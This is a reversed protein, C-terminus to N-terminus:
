VAFLHVRPSNPTFLSSGWETVAINDGVAHIAYPVKVGDRATVFKNDVLRGAETLVQVQNNDLCLYVEGNQHYSVGWPSANTPYAWKVRGQTDMCLLARKDRDSVLIEGASTTSLFRPWSFLDEGSDTKHITKLILARTDIIDVAQKGVVCCSVVFKGDPLKAIGEYPKDTTVTDMLLLSEETGVFALQCQEPLTVVADTSDHAQCLCVPCNLTLQDPPANANRIYFRFVQGNHADTLVISDEIIAVGTLQWCTNTRDAPKVNFTVRARRPTLDSRATGPESRPTSAPLSLSRSTRASNLSLRPVERPTGLFIQSNTESGVQRSTGIEYPNLSQIVVSGLVPPNEFIRETEENVAFHVDMAPLKTSLAKLAIDYQKVQGEIKSISNLIEIGTGSNCVEDFKGITENIKGVIVSSQSNDKVASKGANKITAKMDDIQQMATQFYFKLKTELDTLESLAMEKCSQLSNHGSNEGYQYQKAFQVQKQLTNRLKDMKPRFHEVAEDIGVCECRSGKHSKVVCLACATVACKLCFFEKLRSKHDKCTMSGMESKDSTAHLLVASLLSGLFTDPPFAAAWHKHALGPSPRGVQTRDNPCKFYLATPDTVTQKIHEELCQKCFSHGCPLLRPDKYRGLCISCMLYDSEVNRVVREAM